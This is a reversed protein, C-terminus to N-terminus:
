KSGLREKATRAAATNPYAKILENLTKKANNVAKLETQCSAINLMADAAKPSDPYNKVVAQQAVIAAKCDRNAYYANGLWYQANAAYASGPYRRVFAQLATAAGEYNGEKFQQMAADYSNQESQDVSATQGDIEVQRPELARLRKDMDAYLDKQRKSAVEIENQLVEVQGRLRAIEQMTQEHQAILDLTSTKDAKTDMRSALDKSLAEVKARLDLIARRAEDDDFVGASAHLSFAAAALAVATKAFKIM